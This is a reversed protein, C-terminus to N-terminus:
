GLWNIQDMTAKFGEFKLFDDEYKESVRSPHRSEFFQGSQIYVKNSIAEKGWLFWIINSNYVSIYNLVKQSFTNWIEKHSNPIGVECTFATNLFLVGQKELGDFWENPQKIKFDGRQIEEKITSYKLINGYCDIGNYNKHILRIINKLSVQRFSETWTTLNGVEFARGTAVGISPYVDQGLWIVKVMSLDVSLFRLIKSPDNPNIHDGLKSEILKLENEIEETLFPQWSQHISDPIIM